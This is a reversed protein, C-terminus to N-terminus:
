GIFIGKRGSPNLKTRKEKPIHTYMPFGFIRLHNFEPKEGSFAEELTKNDLLGHPTRIQVFIDKNGGGM